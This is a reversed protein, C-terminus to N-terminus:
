FESSQFQLGQDLVANDPYEIYAAIWCCLFPELVEKSAERSLFAAASFKIDKHVVHLITINKIKMLDMEATRNYVCNENQLSVRFHIKENAIRKCNNCTSRVNELIRLLHPINHQPTGKGILNHLKETSPHYFNRHIRRVEREIYYYDLPCGIYMHGMNHIRWHDRPIQLSEEEFNILLKVKKFLDLGVLLRVDIPVVHVTFRIM